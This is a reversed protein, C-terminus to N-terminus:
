RRKSSGSWKSLPTSPKRKKSSPTSSVTGAASRTSTSVHVQRKARGLEVQNVQSGFRLTNLTEQSSADTPSCNVLMLTKGAGSLCPQLLYTLKSNRFPVHSSKNGLAVFVDALSSLSKNISMAEKARQGTAGSRDLRESGALDVLNLQSCLKQGGESTARLYLTFVAHSRSSVENMKTAAVARHKAALRMVENIADPDTPDLPQTTLNTVYRNGAVDVKIDHKTDGKTTDRLLDRISENYIELYSCSVDYTWGEEKEMKEKYCGIQELSRPIIGRMAGNGSGQM